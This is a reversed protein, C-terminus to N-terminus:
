KIFKPKPYEKKLNAPVVWVLKKQIRSWIKIGTLRQRKKTNKM